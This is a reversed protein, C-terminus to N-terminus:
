PGFVSYGHAGAMAGAITILSAVFLIWHMRRLSRLMRVPDNKLRKELRRHALPEIVFLMVAFVLWLLVMAHMWWFAAGQTFRQWLDFQWLMALGSAGALLVMARAIWAFRKEIRAFLAVGELGPLAACAPLVVAAVFGVGGIWVVIALVHLVRALTFAM